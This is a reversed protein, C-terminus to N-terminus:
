VNPINPMNCIPDLYLSIKMYRDVHTWPDIERVSKLRNKPKFRVCLSLQSLKLRNTFDAGPSLSLSLWRDSQM